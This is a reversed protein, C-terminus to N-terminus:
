QDETVILRRMVFVVLPVSNNLGCHFGCGYFLNNRNSLNLSGISIDERDNLPSIRSILIIWIRLFSRLQSLNLFFFIMDRFGNFIVTTQIFIFIMLLFRGVDLVNNFMKRMSWRRYNEGASTFFLGLCQPSYYFLLLQRINATFSNDYYLYHSM